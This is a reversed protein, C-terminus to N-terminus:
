IFAAAVQSVAGLAILFLGTYGWFDYRREADILDQYKIGTQLSQAGRTRMRFPMGFTFLLVVGAFNLLIGAVNLTTASVWIM